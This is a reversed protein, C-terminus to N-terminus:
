IKINTNLFSLSVWKEKEKGANVVVVEFVFLGNQAQHLM